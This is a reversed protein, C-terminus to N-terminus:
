TTWPQHSRPIFQSQLCLAPFCYRFANAEKTRRRTWWTHANDSRFGMQHAPHNSTIFPFPEVPNTCDGRSLCKPREGIDALLTHMNEDLRFNGLILAMAIYRSAEGYNVEWALVHYQYFPSIDHNEQSM